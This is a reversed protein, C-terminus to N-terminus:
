ARQSAGIITPPGGGNFTTMPPQLITQSSQMPVQEYMMRPPTAAPGVYSNSVSMTQPQMMQTGVISRSVEVAQGMQGTTVPPHVIDRTQMPPQQMVVQQQQQQVPVAVPVEVIKEIIQTQICPVEVRKEVEVAYPQPVAVPVQQMMMPQPMAMPVPMPYNVQVDVQQMIPMPIQKVVELTQIQTRPVPIQREVAQQILHPVPRFIPREIEQIIKKPVQIIREVPIERVEIRPIVRLVEQIQPVEVYRDQYQVQSIELPPLTEQCFEIVPAERTMPVEVLNGNRIAQERASSGDGPFHPRGTAPDIGSACARGAASNFGSRGPIPLGTAPDIDTGFESGGGGGKAIQIIEQIQPVEVIRDVVQPQPVEVLRERHDINVRPIEVIREMFEPTMEFNPGAPPQMVNNFFHKEMMMPPAQVVQQINRMGYDDEQYMGQGGMMGMGMSGMPPGSM